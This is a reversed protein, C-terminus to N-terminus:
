GKAKEGEFLRAARDFASVSLGEGGGETRRGGSESALVALVNLTAGLSGVRRGGPDTIVLARTSPDLLGNAQRWALQTRYGQAQAENAATLVLIDFPTM